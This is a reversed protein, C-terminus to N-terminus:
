VGDRFAILALVQLPVQLMSSPASFVPTSGQSAQSDKKCLVSGVQGLTAGDM